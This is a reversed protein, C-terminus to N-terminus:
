QAVPLQKLLSEHSMQTQASSAELTELEKMREEQTSTVPKSTADLAELQGEPTRIYADYARKQKILMVIYVIAVILVVLSAGILFTRSRHSSDERVPQIDFTPTTDQPM